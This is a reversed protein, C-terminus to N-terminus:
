SKTDKAPEPTILYISSLKLQLTMQSANEDAAGIQLSKIKLPLASTEIDWLFQTVAAMSGSGSVMFDVEGFQQSTTPRDPQIATLLLHARGSSEELHRFVRGEITEIQYSLGAEQMQSWRQRLLKKRELAALSQKVETQLAERTQRTHARKELIPSLAYRDGLLIAIAAAAFIMVMRERNTLAM